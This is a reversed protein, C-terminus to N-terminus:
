QSKLLQHTALPFRVVISSNEFLSSLIRDRRTQCPCSVHEKTGLIFKDMEKHTDKPLFNYSGLLEGFSPKEWPNSGVLWWSKESLSCFKGRPKPFPESAPTTPAQNSDTKALNDTSSTGAGQFCFSVFRTPPTGPLNASTGTRGWSEKAARWSLFRAFLKKCHHFPTSSCSAFEKSGKIITTDPQAPFVSLNSHLITPVAGVRLLFFTFTTPGRGKSPGTIQTLKQYKQTKMAPIMATEDRSWTHQRIINM